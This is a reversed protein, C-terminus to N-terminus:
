REEIIADLGEDYSYSWSIKYEDFILSRIGDKKSTNGITNFIEPTVGVCRLAKDLENEFIGLTTKGEGDLYLSTNKLEAYKKLTGLNEYCNYLKQNVYVTTTSTSVIESSIAQEVAEDIREQIDEESPGCAVFITLLFILIRKMKKNNWM